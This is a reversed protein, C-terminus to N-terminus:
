QPENEDENENEDEESSIGDTPLQYSLSPMRSNTEDLNQVTNLNDLFEEDSNDEIKHLFFL